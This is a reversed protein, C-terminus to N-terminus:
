NETPKWEKWKDSYYYISRMHNVGSSYREIFGHSILAEIDTYLRHNGKSYLGYVDSLLRHNLYFYMKGGQVQFAEIDKFDTAPRSHAAYFQSKAYVYLMRQRATLDKFAESILMSYAINATPDTEEKGNDNIFKHKWNGQRDQKLRSRAEFKQYEPPKKNRKQAM